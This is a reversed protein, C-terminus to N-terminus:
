LGGGTTLDQPTTLGPVKGAQMAALLLDRAEILEDITQAQQTILGNLYANMGQVAALRDLEPATM